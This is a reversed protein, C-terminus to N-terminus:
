TGNPDPLPHEHLGVYLFFPQKAKAQRQIFDVSANAIDGEVQRRYDLTYPRVNKLNGNAESEWIYPETAAIAAEQMGARQMSERYLIGDTTELVGVHYEDFGQRTPWSIESAGLHWKGAIATAYGQSRSCSVSHDSARGPPREAHRRHHRHHQSGGAASYRGTM